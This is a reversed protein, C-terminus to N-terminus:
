NTIWIIRVNPDATQLEVRMAVQQPAARYRKHLAPKRGAPRAAEPRREEVVPAEAAIHVVTRTVIPTVTERRRPWALFVVLIAAFALAWGWTGLRRRGVKTLVRARIAAFDDDSLPQVARYSNM